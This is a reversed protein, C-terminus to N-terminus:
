ILHIHLISYATMRKHCLGSNDIQLSGLRVVGDNSVYNIPKAVLGKNKKNSADLILYANLIADEALRDIFRRKGNYVVLEATRESALSYTDSSRLLSTFSEVDVLGFFMTLVTSIIIPMKTLSCGCNSRLDQILLGTLISLTEKGNITETFVGAEAVLQMLKEGMTIKEVKITSVEKNKQEKKRIYSLSARLMKITKKSRESTDKPASRPSFLAETISAQAAVAPSVVTSNPKKVSPPSVSISCDELIEDTLKRVASIIDTLSECLHASNSEMFKIRYGTQFMNVGSEIISEKRKCRLFTFRNPYRKMIARRITPNMLGLKIGNAEAFLSSRNGQELKQLAEAISTATYFVHSAPRFRVVMIAIAKSCTRLLADSFHFSGFITM